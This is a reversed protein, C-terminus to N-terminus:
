VKIAELINYFMVGLMLLAGGWLVAIGCAGERKTYGIGMLVMALVILILTFEFHDM